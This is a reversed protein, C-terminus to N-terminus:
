CGTRHEHPPRVPPPLSLKASFCEPAIWIFKRGRCSRTTTRRSSASSFVDPPMMMGSVARSFGISPSIRATPGPARSSVPLSAREAPTPQAAAPPANTKPSNWSWSPLKWQNGTTSCGFQGAGLLLLSAVLSRRVGHSIKRTMDMLSEPRFGQRAGAAADRAVLGCLLRYVRSVEAESCGSGALWLRLEFETLRPQAVRTAVADILEATRPHLEGTERHLFFPIPVGWARQRSICWDPRGEIMSYIRQEGWGPVWQVTM